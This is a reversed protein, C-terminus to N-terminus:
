SWRGNQDVWRLSWYYAGAGVICYGGVGFLALPFFSPMFTVLLLIWGFVFCGVALAVTFWVWVWAAVRTPVAFLSIRVLIPWDKRDDNAGM